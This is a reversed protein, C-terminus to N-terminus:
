SEEAFQAERFSRRPLLDCVLSHHHLLSVNEPKVGARRQSTRPCGEADHSCSTKRQWKEQVLSMPPERGQQLKELLSLQMHVQYWAEAEKLVLKWWTEATASLDSVGPEILLLRDTLQLPAQTSSWLPPAPLDHPGPRVVEIGRSRDQKQEIRM